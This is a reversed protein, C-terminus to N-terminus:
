IINSTNLYLHQIVCVGNLYFVKGKYLTDYFRTYVHLM